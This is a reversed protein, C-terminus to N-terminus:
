FLHKKLSINDSSKRSWSCFTQLRQNQHQRTNSICRTQSILKIYNNTNENEFYKEQSTIFRRRRNSQDPKRIQKVNLQKINIILPPYDISSPNMMKPIKEPKAKFYNNKTVNSNQISRKEQDMFKIQQTKNLNQQLILEETKNSEIFNFQNLINEITNNVKKPSLEKQKRSEILLKCNLRYKNVNQM